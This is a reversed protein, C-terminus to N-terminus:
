RDARDATSEDVIAELGGILAERVQKNESGFKEDMAARLEAIQQRLQHALELNSPRATGPFLERLRSAADPRGAQELQEPTVGVVRAMRALTTVGRRSTMAAGGRVITRWHTGTIGAKEAAGNQSLGARERAAEILAGEPPTSATDM